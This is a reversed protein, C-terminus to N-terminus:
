RYVKEEVERREIAENLKLLADDVYQSADYLLETCKISKSNFAKDALEKSISQLEKRLQIWSRNVM